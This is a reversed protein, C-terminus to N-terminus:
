VATSDWCCATWKSIKQLQDQASNDPLWVNRQFNKYKLVAINQYSSIQKIGFKPIKSNITHDKKKKNTMIQLQIFDPLSM